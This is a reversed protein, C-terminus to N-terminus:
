SPSTLRNAAIPSRGAPSCAASPRRCASRRMDSHRPDRRISALLQELAAPPGELLQAYHDTTVVLAGTVDLAANRSRAVAIIGAVEHGESIAPYLRTSVYLLANM